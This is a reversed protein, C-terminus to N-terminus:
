RLPGAPAHCWHYDGPALYLVCYHVRAGGHQPPVTYHPTGKVDTLTSDPGAAALRLVSTDVPSVLTRPADELMVRPAVPLATDLRIARNFFERLNSHQSLDPELAEGLKCGFLAAYARHVPVRVWM